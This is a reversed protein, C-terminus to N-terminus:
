IEERVAKAARVMNKLSEITEPMDRTKLGCDPNVWLKKPPIFKMMRHIKEKIEEVNPIRPSHVDYVGPGIERSYRYGAFAKLISFESKAAEITIVDADLKDIAEIIDSFESYCMHTHIQTEPKVSSSCLRFSKIAWDLYGKWERRRLPLKERLAAEDIQIISINSKELDEVEEKIALAIQYAIEKLEIDERPFSWNLITVPGTLIGKVFHKTLSQAYKIWEITIPKTRRVDGFIIPPKVGRTGYSQVWGNRTIVFGELNEGFYEVMDNREYEGHVFVDLGIEEQLKIVESIKARILNTYEEISIEGKKYRARIKRIESTQPFSGITTTSLLPLALKEKQIKNRKKFPTSRKFDKEKLMNIKNRIDAFIWKSISSKENIKAQNKLFSEEREYNESKLLNSIEKLESIKEYAFALHEKIESQIENEDEVTYPVHLLSCSTSLVINEEPVHKSLEKIISISTSYNNIWVNKGNVIGAFIKKDEPFGKHKIIEINRKGEVFDLGIADFPLSIIEPYIDRLDGFYTQLLTKTKKERLIERYITKFHYVDDKSLDTVLYPEDIQLMSIKEKSLSDLLEKYCLIVPDLYDIFKKGATKIKSLKLFTFPGVIVPKTTIGNKTALEIDNKIKEVNLRFITNETIEPVIYHYNTNFWKKMERAKLDIDDKQYGKAISFYQQIESLSIHKYGPPIGTLMLSTDLMHDYLSFDSPIYDIGQEKMFYWQSIKLTSIETTFQEESIEEKLYSELIKKFERNRGFRPFGVLSIEM